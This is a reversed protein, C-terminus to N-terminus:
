VGDNPGDTVLGIQDSYNVDFRYKLLMQSFAIEPKISNGTISIVEKSAFNVQEKILENM